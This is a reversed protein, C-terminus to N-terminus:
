KKAFWEDFTKAKEDLIKQYGAALYEAKYKEYIADFESPKCTILACAYEQYKTVTLTGLSSQSSIVAPIFINPSAKTYNPKTFKFSDEASIQIRQRCPM